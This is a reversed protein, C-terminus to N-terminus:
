LISKSYFQWAIIGATVAINLSHKTGIQPIELVLDCNEIVDQSVGNVENGLIFAYKKSTQIDFEQLFTSNQTQEIAVIIWDEKKLKTILPIVEEEYTWQVSDTAGLATKQIDRHPPTGTIGCLFIQEVRFSDGTRFVSGVNQLSRVNDLIFAFNSKASNQYAEPSLRNLEDMELKKYKLMALSNHSPM